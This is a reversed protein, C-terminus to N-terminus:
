ISQQWLILFSSAYSLIEIFNVCKLMNSYLKVQFPIFLEFIYTTDFLFKWEFTLTKTLDCYRSTKDPSISFFRYLIQINYLICIKYLNKEIEGSLVDLYLFIQINYIIYIYIYLRRFHNTFCCWTCLVFHYLILCKTSHCFKRGM